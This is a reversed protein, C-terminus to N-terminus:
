AKLLCMELFTVWAARDLSGEKLKKLGKGDTSNSGVDTMKSSQDFIICYGYKQYSHSCYYLNKEHLNLM